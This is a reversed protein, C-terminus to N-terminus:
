SFSCNSLSVLHTKKKKDKQEKEGFYKTKAPKQYMHKICFILDWFSGQNEIKKERELGSMGRVEEKAEDEKIQSSKETNQQKKM